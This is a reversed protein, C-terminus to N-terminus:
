GCPQAHQQPEDGQGQKQIDGDSMVNEGGILLHEDIPETGVLQEVADLHLLEVDGNGGDDQEGVVTDLALFVEPSCEEDHEARKDLEVADDAEGKEEEGLM